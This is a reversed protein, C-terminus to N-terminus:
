CSLDYSPNRNYDFVGYAPRLDGDWEVDNDCFFNWFAHTSNFSSCAVQNWYQQANAISPVALHDTPGSKPWLHATIWVSTGSKVSNVTHQVSQVSEWFFSYADDITNVTTNDQWYPDVDTGVFDCAEIVARNEVKVWEDWTDIHGIQVAPSYGPAASLISRVDDIQKALLSATIGQPYEGELHLDDWGVVVGAIWDFGYAQIAKLLDRKGPGYHYRGVGMNVLIHGGTAIAAPVASFINCHLSYPFRLTTFNGPLNMMANFDAKWDSTSKCGGMGARRSHAGLGKWYANAGIITTAVLALAYSAVKM